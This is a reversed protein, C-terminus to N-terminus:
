PDRNEVTRLIKLRAMSNTTKGRFHAARHFKPKEASITWELKQFNMEFCIYKNLRQLVLLEGLFYDTTNVLWM